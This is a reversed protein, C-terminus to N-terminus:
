NTVIIKGVNKVRSAGLAGTARKVLVGAVFVNAMAMANSAMSTAIRTPYNANVRREAMDPMANVNKASVHEM